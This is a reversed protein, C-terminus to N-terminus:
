QDFFNFSRQEFIPTQEPLGGVGISADRALQYNDISMAQSADVVVTDEEEPDEKVEDVPPNIEKRYLKVWDIDKYFPHQEIERADQQSSGLRSKPDRELLGKFLGQVDQGLYSPLPIEADLTMEYMVNLDENHWPPSGTMM